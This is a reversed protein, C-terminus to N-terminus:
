PAAGRRGQAPSSRLRLFNQLYECMVPPWRRCPHTNSSACPCPPTLPALLFVWLRPM